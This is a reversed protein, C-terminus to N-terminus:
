KNFGSIIHKVDLFVEKAYAFLIKRNVNYWMPHVFELFILNNKLFYRAGTPLICVDSDEIKWIKKAFDFTGGCIVLNPSIIDIEDIILKANYASTAYKLIENYDSGGKGPTKKINVIATKGLNARLKDIDCENYTINENYILEVWLCVNPWTKYLNDTGYAQGVLFDSIFDWDTDREEYNVEKLLFVTKISVNSFSDEDVIGDFVVPAGQYFESKAKRILEKIKENVNNM